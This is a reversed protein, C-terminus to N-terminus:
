LGALQAIIDKGKLYLIDPLFEHTLGYRSIGVPYMDHISREEYVRGNRRQASLQKILLGLDDSPHIFLHTLVQDSFNHDLLDRGKM